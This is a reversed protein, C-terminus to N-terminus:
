IDSLAIIMTTAAVVAPTLLCMTFRKSYSAGSDFVRRIKLNLFNLQYKEILGADAFSFYNNGGIIIHDLVRIQLINGCYVMDRTLQRDSKSPAPDGSPHNHVFIVAATDHKLANEIIERPRIPISELTGEFLDVVDIIQSRSDLYLAKFVEKKLDRMSYYLYDFVERSSKYFPQEVIQKKLIESPLDHLLKICFVGSAPIRVRQLEEPSAALFGRLGKFQELCDRALKRSERYPLVLSLLLEIIGRESLNEFGSKLLRKQLLTLPRQRASQLSAMEAGGGQEGVRYSQKRALITVLNHLIDPFRM